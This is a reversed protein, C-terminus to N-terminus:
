LRVLRYQLVPLLRHLLPHGSRPPLHGASDVPMMPLRLPGAKCPHRLERGGPSEGPHCCSRCRIRGPTRAPGSPIKRFLGSPDNRLENEWEDAARVLQPKQPSLISRPISTRTPVSYRSPVDGSMVALVYRIMGPYLASFDERHLTLLYRETGAGAAVSRVLERVPEMVISDQGSPLITYSVSGPQLTGYNIINSQLPASVNVTLKFTKILHFM